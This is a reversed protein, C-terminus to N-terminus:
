LLKQLIFPFNFWTAPHSRLASEHVNCICNEIQNGGQVLSPLKSLATGWVPYVHIVLLLISGYSSPHIHSWTARYSLAATWTASLHRWITNWNNEIGSSWVSQASQSTYWVTDEVPAFSDNWSLYKSIASIIALTPSGSISSSPDISSPPNSNYVPIDSNISTFSFLGSIRDGLLPKDRGLIVLLVIQWNQFFWIWPSTVWVFIIWFRNRFYCPINTRPYNLHQSIIQPRSMSLYQQM